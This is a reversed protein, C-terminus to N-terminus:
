CDDQALYRRVRAISTAERDAGIFPCGLKRAAPAISAHGLMLPNCLVQGPQAIRRVLLELGANSRQWARLEPAGDGPLPLEIVDDGPPMRFRPKGYVLLPKRRLQIRHPPGSRYSSANDRYDLEAVWRLEPHRLAELTDPLREVGSIVVLVGGPGLAHAAFAALESLLPLSEPGHPPHTIIVDVSAADVLQHLDSPAAHHLTVTGDQYKEYSAALAAAEAAKDRERSLHRVAVALSRAMGDTVRKLAQEQVEAPQNVVRAADSAKVRRERVAQQLAAAAPGAASMVRGVDRVLRPSVALMEAAQQQTLGNPMKAPHESSNRYDASRRDGGPRSERSLNYAILARQTADLHRRALNKGLTFELPDVNPALHVYGPAVGAEQCARLRHRGDIIAGRWVAIPELLGQASISAALQRYDEPEMEPFLMAYESLPYEAPPAVM